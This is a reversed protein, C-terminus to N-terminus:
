SQEGKAADPAAALRQKRRTDVAYLGENIRHRMNTPWDCVIGARQMTSLMIEIDEENDVMQQQTVAPPTVRERMVDPASAPCSCANVGYNASCNSKHDSM